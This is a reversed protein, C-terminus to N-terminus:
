LQRSIVEFQSWKTDTFSCLTAHSFPTFTGVRALRTRSRSGWCSTLSGPITQRSSSGMLLSRTLGGFAALKLKRLYMRAGQHQRLPRRRHHHWAPFSRNGRSGSWRRVVWLKSGWVLLLRGIPGKVVSQATAPNYNLSSRLRLLVSIETWLSLSLSRPSSAILQTLTSYLCRNLAETPRFPSAGSDSNNISM